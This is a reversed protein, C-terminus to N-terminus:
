SGAVSVTRPGYAALIREVAKTPKLKLYLKKCYRTACSVHTLGSLASVQEGCRLIRLVTSLALLRPVIEVSVITIPSFAETESKKKM